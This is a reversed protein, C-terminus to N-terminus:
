SVNQIGSYKLHKPWGQSVGSQGHGDQAGHFVKCCNKNSITRMSPKANNKTPVLQLLTTLFGSKPSKKHNVQEESPVTPHSHFLNQFFRPEKRGDTQATALLSDDGNWFVKKSVLRELFWTRAHLIGFPRKPDTLCFCM